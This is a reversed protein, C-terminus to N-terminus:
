WETVGSPPQGSLRGEQQQVIGCTKDTYGYLYFKGMAEETNM